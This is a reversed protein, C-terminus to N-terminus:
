WIMLVSDHRGSKDNDDFGPSAKGWFMLVPPKGHNHSPLIKTPRM